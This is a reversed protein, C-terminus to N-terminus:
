VGGIPNPPPQHGLRIRALDFDRERLIIVMTHGLAARWAGVSPFGLKAAAADDDPCDLEIDEPNALIASAAEAAATHQQSILRALESLSGRPAIHEGKIWKRIQREGVALFEAAERQSLGSAALLAAFPTVDGM